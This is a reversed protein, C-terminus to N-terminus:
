GDRPRLPRRGRRPRLNDPSAARDVRAPVRGFLVHALQAGNAGELLEESVVFASPGEFSCNGHLVWRGRLLLYICTRDPAAAEAAPIFRTDLAFGAREEVQVWAARAYGVAFKIRSAGIAVRGCGFQM